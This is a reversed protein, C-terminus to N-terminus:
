GSTFEWGRQCESRVFLHEELLCAHDEEDQGDDERGGAHEDDAAAAGLEAEVDQEGQEAPERAQQM